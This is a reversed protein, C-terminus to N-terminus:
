KIKHEDINNFKKFSYVIDINIHYPYICAPNINLKIKYLIFISEIYVDLGLKIYRDLPKFPLFIPTFIKKFFYHLETIKMRKTIM